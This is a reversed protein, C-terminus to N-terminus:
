EDVCHAHLYPRRGAAAPDESLLAFLAQVQDALSSRLEEHADMMPRKPKAVLSLDLRHVLAASNLSDRTACGSQM